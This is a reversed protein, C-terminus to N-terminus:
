PESTNTGEALCVYICGCGALYRLKVDSGDFRAATSNGTHTYSFLPRDGGTCSGSLEMRAAADRLAIWFERGLTQREAYLELM